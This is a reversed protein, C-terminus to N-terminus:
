HFINRPFSMNIWIGACLLVYSDKADLKCIRVEYRLLTLPGPGARQPGRTYGILSQYGADNQVIYSGDM